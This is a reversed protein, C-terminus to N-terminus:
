NSGVNKKERIPTSFTVYLSYIAFLFYSLTVMILCTVYCTRQRRDFEQKKRLTILNMTVSSSLIM